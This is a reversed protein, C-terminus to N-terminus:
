YLAALINYRIKNTIILIPLLSLFNFFFYKGSPYSKSTSIVDVLIDVSLSMFKLEIDKLHRGIDQWILDLWNEEFIQFFWLFFPHNKMFTLPHILFDAVICSKGEFFIFPFLIRLYPHWVNSAKQPKWIKGKPGGM